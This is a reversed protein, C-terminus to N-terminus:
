MEGGIKSKNIGPIRRAKPPIPKPYKRPSINLETFFMSYLSKFIVLRINMEVNSSISVM